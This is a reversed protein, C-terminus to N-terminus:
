KGKKVGGIFPPPPTGPPLMGPANAAEASVPKGDSTRLEGTKPGDEVAPASQCGGLCAIAALFAM